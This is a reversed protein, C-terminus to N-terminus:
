LLVILVDACMLYIRLALPHTKLYIACLINACLKFAFLSTHYRMPVTKAFLISGHFLIRLVGSQTCQAGAARSFTTRASCLSGCFSPKPVQALLIFEDRCLFNIWAFFIGSKLRCAASIHFHPGSIYYLLRRNTAISRHGKWQFQFILLSYLLCSRVWNWPSPCREIVASQRSWM